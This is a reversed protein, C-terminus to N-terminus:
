VKAEPTRKSTYSGSPLTSGLIQRLKSKGSEVPATGIYDTLEAIRKTNYEIMAESWAKSAEAKYLQLKCTQLETMALKKPDTLFFSM